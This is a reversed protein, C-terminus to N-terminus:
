SAMQYKERYQAEWLWEYGYCMQSKTKLVGNIRQPKYGMMREAMAVTDYEAVVAKSIPDIRMVKGKAVKPTEYTFHYQRIGRGKGTHKSLGALNKRIHGEPINLAASAEKVSGYRQISGDDDCIALIPKSRSPCLEGSTIVKKTDADKPSIEMVPATMVEPATVAPEDIEVEQEEMIPADEKVEEENSYIKGDVAKLDMKQATKQDQMMWEYLATYEDDTLANVLWESVAIGNKKANKHAEGVIRQIYGYDEKDGYRDETLYEEYIIYIDRLVNDWGYLDLIYPQLWKEADADTNAVVAKFLYKNGFVSNAKKDLLKGFVGGINQCIYNYNLNPEYDQFLSPTKEKILYYIYEVIEKWPLCLGLAIDKLFLLGAESNNVKNIIEYFESVKKIFALGNVNEQIGPYNETTKNFINM